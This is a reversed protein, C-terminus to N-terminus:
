RRGVKHIRSAFVSTLRHMDGSDENSVSAIIELLVNAPDFQVKPIELYVQVETGLYQM